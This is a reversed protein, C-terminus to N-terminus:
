SLGLHLSRSSSATSLTRHSLSLGVCFSIILWLILYPAFVCENWWFCFADFSSCTELLLEILSMWERNRWYICLDRVCVTQKRTTRKYRAFNNGHMRPAKPM